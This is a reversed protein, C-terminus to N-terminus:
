KLVTCYSEDVPLFGYSRITKALSELDNKNTHGIPGREDFYTFQYIYKRRPDPHALGEQYHVISNRYFTVKGRKLHEYVRNVKIENDEWEELLDMQDTEKLFDRHEKDLLYIM